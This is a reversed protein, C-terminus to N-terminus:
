HGQVVGLRTKLTVGNKSVFIECVAIRGYNSYFAFLFDCGLKRIAGAEIINLSMVWMELDRYYEVDLLEDLLLDHIISRSM